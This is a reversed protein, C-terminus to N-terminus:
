IKEGIEGSPVAFAKRGNKKRRVLKQKKGPTAIRNCVTSVITTFNPSSSKIGETKLAKAINAVPVAYGPKRSLFDVIAKAISMNAYKGGRNTATKEPFMDLVRDIADARQKIEDMQKQLEQKKFILEERTM